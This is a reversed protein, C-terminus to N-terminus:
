YIELEAFKYWTQLTSSLYAYCYSIWRDVLYTSWGDRYIFIDITNRSLPMMLDYIWMIQSPRPDWFTELKHFIPFNPSHPTHPNAPYAGREYGSQGLLTQSSFNSSDISQKPVKVHCFRLSYKFSIVPLVSMDSAWLLHYNQHRHWCCFKFWKRRLKSEIKRWIRRM